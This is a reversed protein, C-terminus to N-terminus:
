NEWPTMRQEFGALFLYIEKHITNAMYCSLFWGKPESCARRWVPKSCLRSFRCSTTVNMALAIGIWQKLQQTLTVGFILRLTTLKELCVLTLLV